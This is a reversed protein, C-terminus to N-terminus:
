NRSGRETSTFNYFHGKFQNPPLLKPTTQFGQVSFRQALLHGQHRNNYKIYLAASFFFTPLSPMSRTGNIEYIRKLIVICNDKQTM